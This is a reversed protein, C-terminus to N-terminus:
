NLLNMVQEVVEAPTSNSKVIYASVGMQKGQEIDSKEGKNSLIVRLAGKVLGEKRIATLMELGDMEPMMIDALIVDPTFGCRLKKLAQVASLASEVEFGSNTFKLSYMDLILSDDDVILIKKDKGPM